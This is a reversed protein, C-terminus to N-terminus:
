AEAILVSEGLIGALALTFESEATEPDWGQIDLDAPPVQEKDILWPRTHKEGPFLDRRETALMTLDARKVQAEIEDTPAPIGAKDYIMQDIRHEMAKWRDRMIVKHVANHLGAGTGMIFSKMPATIDGIYAEHADHLLGYVAIEDPLLSAVHCSHEAVSYFWRTHGNFRCQRSLATAIDTWDFMPPEPNALDFYRGTSTTFWLDGTMM